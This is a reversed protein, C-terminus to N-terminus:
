IADGLEATMETLARIRKEVQELELRTTREQDFLSEVEAQAQALTSRAAQLEQRKAGQSGTVGGGPSGQADFQGAVQQEFDRWGEREAEREQALQVQAAEVRRVEAAFARAEAHWKAADAIMERTPKREMADVPM